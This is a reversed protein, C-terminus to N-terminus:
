RADIFPGLGDTLRMPRQDLSALAMLYQRILVTRCQFGFPTDYGFGILCCTCLGLGELLGQCAMGSKGFRGPLDPEGLGREFLSHRTLGIGTNIACLKGTNVLRGWETSLPLGQSIGPFPYFISGAGCRRGGFKRVVSGRFGIRKLFHGPLRLVFVSRALILELYKAREPILGGREVTTDSGGRSLHFGGTRLSLCQFLFGLLGSNRKLGQLM